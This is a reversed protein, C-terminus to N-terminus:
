AHWASLARLLAVLFPEPRRGAPPTQRSPVPERPPEGGARAPRRRARETPPHTTPEIAIRM